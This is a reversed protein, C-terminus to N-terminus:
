PQQGEEILQLHLATLRRLNGAIHEEALRRAEPANESVVATAIAHHEEVLAAVDIEPSGPLWLMGSVEAQLNVERRTLRASQAAVALEIHFRCDARIRDGLAASTGLQETLAFLRRVNSASAREAALRAAQGAVAQHEDVLDRLGSLTM